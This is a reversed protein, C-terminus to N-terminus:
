TRKSVSLARALLAASLKGFANPEIDHVQEERLTTLQEPRQIGADAPFGIKPIDSEKQTPTKKNM